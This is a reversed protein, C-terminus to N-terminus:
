AFFFALGLARSLPFPAPADPYLPPPAGDPLANPYLPPPAAAPMANPYLPAPLVVSPFLPPQPAQPTPPFGPDGQINLIQTTNNQIEENIVTLENTVETINTSLQNTATVVTGVNEITTGFGASLRSLFQYFDNTAYVQGDRVVGLPRDGYVTTQRTVSAPDIPDPPTISSSM